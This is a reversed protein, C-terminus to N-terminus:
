FTSEFYRWCVYRIASEDLPKLPNRLHFTQYFDSRLYIFPAGKRDFITYLLILTQDVPRLRGTNFKTSHEGGPTTACKKLDLNFQHKRYMGADSWCFVCMIKLLDMNLLLIKIPKGPCCYGLWTSSNFVELFYAEAIVLLLLMLFLFCM